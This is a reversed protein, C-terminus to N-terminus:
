FPLVSELGQNRKISTIQGLHFAEHYLLFILGGRVTADETPPKFDIETNLNEETLNVLLPELIANIAKWHVLLESMSPYDKSADFKGKCVEAFPFDYSGGVLSLIFVRSNILHGSMWTISTFNEGIVKNAVDENVTAVRDNFLTSNFNFLKVVNEIAKNQM